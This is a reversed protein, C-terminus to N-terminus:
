ATIGKGERIRPDIVGYLLDLLTSITMFIFVLLLTVAQVVGYDGAIVGDILLTGVGPLSFVTEVLASGVMLIGIQMGLITIVPIIANRFCHSWILQRRTAGKAQIVTSYDSQLQEIMGREMMRAILAIMSFAMALAPPFLRQFYQGWGNYSGTFTYGPMQASFYWIMLIGTLFPPCAVLLLEVISTITASINHQHSATYVGAPIAVIVAILTSLLVIGVTTPLRQSLLVSVPQRYEYSLGFNGHLMNTIWDVYQTVLPKNLGFQNRINAVTEPTSQKGGLIVSVPDTPGLRVLFFIVISTSFLVFIYQALRNLIFSKM